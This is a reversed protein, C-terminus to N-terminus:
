PFLKGNFELHTKNIIKLLPSLKFLYILQLELNFRLELHTTGVKFVDM